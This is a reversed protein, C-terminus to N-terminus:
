DQVFRFSVIQLFPTPIQENVQVSGTVVEESGGLVMCHNALVFTGNKSDCLLMKQKESFVFRHQKEMLLGEYVDKTSDQLMKM